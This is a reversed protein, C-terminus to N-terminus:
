DHPDPHAEPYPHACPHGAPHATPHCPYAAPGADVYVGHGPPYASRKHHHGAVSVANTKELLVLLVFLGVFMALKM